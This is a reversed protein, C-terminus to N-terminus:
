STLEEFYYEDPGRERDQKSEVEKARLEIRRIKGSSTKPLETTFELIRPAKYHALRERSFNFIEHALEESPVHNQQLVVFAKVVNGRLAHPSGVVAAEAVAPHEILVSEVEFPGIRYDSAKIVDDSRGVFWLRGENDRYAKDGTYYLGGRISRSVTDKPVGIYSTFLGIPRSQLKVAINGERSPPMEKGEDDVIAIDYLFTPRGMSGLKVSTGPLNGVMLTSETQGYGDRITLGTKERWSVIVEPNLPEGASVVERLKFNYRSLDELILMRWVTPPACFTTVQNKQLVDLHERAVFRGLYHYGVTTAGVNWPAFFSSWAFKAWGPQSMNYHTDSSKIGIWAATTLHGVPYSVHTHLVM